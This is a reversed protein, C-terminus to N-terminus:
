GARAARAHPGPAVLSVGLALMVASLQLGGFSFLEGLTVSSALVGVIWITTGLRLGEDDGAAALRPRRAVLARLVFLAPLYVLIAGVIGMLMVANLVGLDGNRISGQPLTPYPHAQPHQFGLGIPWNQGLLRLMEDATKTRDAVTGSSNNVDSVGAVARTAVKSILHREGSSVAASSGILVALVLPVVVLQKRAVATGAVPDRRFWWILGAVLFGALAGFYAARTLQAALSIGFLAAPAIALRRARATPGLILTGLSLAFAARVLMTMSSYTRTSGEFTSQFHSHVIFQLNAHAQSRAIQAFAFITAGAGLTWFLQKRLRPYTVLVDALLPLTLAFYLFDRAFRAALSAPVVGFIATRAWTITWWVTLMASLVYLARQLKSREAVRGSLVLYLSPLLIALAFVDQTHSIANGGPNVDVGPFGNLSGVLALGLLVGYLRARLLLALVAVVATGAVAKTGYRTDLWAVAVCAVFWGGVVGAGALRPRKVSVGAAGFLPSSTSVASM